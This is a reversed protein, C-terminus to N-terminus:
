GNKTKGAEIKTGTFQVSKYGIYSIELNYEGPNINKIIFNGNLDTASGYYTGKLIVNVGPIDEGTTKIPSKVPFHDQKSDTFSIYLSM